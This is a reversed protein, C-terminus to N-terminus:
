REDWMRRIVPGVISRLRTLFLSIAIVRTTTETGPSGFAEVIASLLEPTFSLLAWITALWLTWSPLARKFLDRLKKTIDDM